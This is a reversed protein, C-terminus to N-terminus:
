GALDDLPELVINLKTYAQSSSRATTKSARSLNAIVVEDCEDVQPRKKM